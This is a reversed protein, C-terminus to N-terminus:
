RCLIDAVARGWREFTGDRTRIYVAEGRRTTFLQWDATRLGTDTADAPLDVDPAFPVELRETLTGAPDRLYQVGLYRLLTAEPHDCVPQSHIDESRATKGTADHWLTQDFTLGDAPDFESADCARIAIVHWLGDGYEGVDSAIAVSKVRGDVAYVLRAVHDEREAETYGRAPFSAFIGDDLLAQVAAEPTV